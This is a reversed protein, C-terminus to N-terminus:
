NGSGGENTPIIIEADHHSSVTGDEWSVTYLMNYREQQIDLIVGTRNPVTKWTCGNVHEITWDKVISGVDYLSAKTDQHNIELLM